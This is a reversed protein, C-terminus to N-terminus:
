VRRATEQRFLSVPTQDHCGDDCCAGLSVNVNPSAMCVGNNEYTQKEDGRQQPRNPLKQVFPPPPPSHHTPHRVDDIGETAPLGYMATITSNTAAKM